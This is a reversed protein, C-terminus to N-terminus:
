TGDLLHRLRALKTSAFGNTALCADVAMDQGYLTAIPLCAIHRYTSARTAPM